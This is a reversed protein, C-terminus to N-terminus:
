ETTNTQSARASVVVCKGGAKAIAVEAAKSFGQAEVTLNKASLDGKALVKVPLRGKIMGQERLSEDNVTSGDAFRNLDALNVVQHRTGFMKNSFGRKPLRRQLPMQGGEFGAAAGGGSRAQQGKHGRGATKGSGSGHGRGVRKPKKTLGRDGPIDHLRM